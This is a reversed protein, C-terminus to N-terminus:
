SATSCSRNVLGARVADRAAREAAAPYETEVDDYDCEFEEDSTAKSLGMTLSRLAPFAGPRGLAAWM